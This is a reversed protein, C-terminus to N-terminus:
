REYEKAHHECLWLYHGEPTLVKRLGGWYQKEDKEVLLQHLTRLSAGRIRELNSDGSADTTALKWDDHGKSEKLQNALEKMFETHNKFKEQYDPLNVIGLWPGALPAAFKLVSVLNNIYPAMTKLWQPPDDIEYLGGEQTPHWCGPAECYLQLDFRQGFINKQRNNSDRPIIVFVKPCYSEIKNRERTLDNTYKLQALKLLESSTSLIKEQGKLQHKELEDLRALLVNLSINSQPSPFVNQLNMMEFGFLLETVSVDEMGKQCEIKARKKEYRKQLNEYNFEFIQECNARCPCPIFREIKLGPFRALTVEIGDKLLAFFNQPCPGRVTLQLYREHPFAQVLALHKAETPSDALLAGTRWHIGTSFRHSRAFFWTPIGAPITNLKFKISMEHCNGRQKVEKWKEQYNPADFPLLEVILSDQKGEIPYCLDFKEMLRLFHKHMLQTVDQWLEEMHAHSFVGSNNRVRDSELVQSIYKTVWQPKLIIFDNLESDDQFYLIDGLEHLWQGLVLVDKAAVGKEGMIRGFEHPSIYKELHSRIAKAANLWKTPWKEGMLPLQAANKAILQRLTDIGQGDKSSIECKGKIQPYKIQLDTFPLDACREDIHTATLLIPSEPALAQITDLWYYLKGQEFGQRANWVVLFLSRNTLFFQHTAHYIEQGGFDWTNLQMMVDPETPHVLNLFKIDIGHTTLEESNFAEGRLARLMSTKGVGGEGVVLLKSIWQRQSDRLMEQLYGLIAKTGQAVIEPPPSTLQNSDLYILTLNILNGIEIPLSMLQNHSLSLSTLNTLNGIEIPLATLQNYGLYLLTLNILNSIEIPLATLQNNSLYLLTLNTLNGIEAPLSTLQNRWLNLSTLNTLNGIEVPLSTLQNNSVSLSTLNTLNGIEVPLSTLQNNSLDLSTLNTLNGIEAPLSTLQNNSLDLSTLNTLNGIEAPLSVLQSRFGFFYSIQGLFSLNKGGESLNLFTVQKKLALEIIQLM